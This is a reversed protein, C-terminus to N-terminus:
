TQACVRAGRGATSWDQFRRTWRQRIDLKKRRPIQPRRGKRTRQLRAHAPARQVLAASSPEASPGTTVSEAPFLFPSLYRTVTSIVHFVIHNRRSSTTMASYSIVFFDNRYKVLSILRYFAPSSRRSCADVYLAEHYMFFWIM